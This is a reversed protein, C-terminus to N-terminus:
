RDGLAPGIVEIRKTWIYGSFTAPVQDLMDLTDIGATGPDGPELPGMLLVASNAAAFREQLLNPWGWLWPAVNIPVMVVTDHCAPPMYGTWGAGVYVALCDILTRRSWSHLETGLLEAARRTPEDGGYSGWIRQRWAPNEALIAALMDGERAERSKFNILFRGDPFASLVDRLEPMMGVGQGRLPFSEGEDATYGYGLDLSQLFALDHSRTVGSGDTRCDLTWDHFVALYGDITPHVDLEVVAAGAAFGTAMSPLTNEILDHSPQEIREATCTENDLGERYYTQHVGRHAILEQRPDVPGPVRWSANFVYIAAAVLLLGVAVLYRKRRFKRHVLL